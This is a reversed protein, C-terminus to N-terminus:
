ARPQPLSIYVFVISFCLGVEIASQYFCVNLLKMCNQVDVEGITHWKSQNEAVQTWNRGAMKRSDDSWRAQAIPSAKKLHVAISPHFNYNM